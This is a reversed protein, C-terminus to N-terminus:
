YTSVADLLALKAELSKAETLAPVLAKLVKEMQTNKVTGDTYKDINQLINREKRLGEAAWRVYRDLV